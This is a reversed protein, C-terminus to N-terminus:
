LGRERPRRSTPREGSKVSRNRHGTTEMNGESALRQVDLRQCQLHETTDRPAPTGISAPADREVGCRKGVRGAQHEEWRAPREKRVGLFVNISLGSNTATSHGAQRQEGTSARMIRLLLRNRHHGSHSAMQATSREGASAAEFGCTM